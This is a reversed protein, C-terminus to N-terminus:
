KSKAVYVGDWEAGPPNAAYDAIREAYLDYLYSLESGGLRRCEELRETAEAWRQSRYTTLMTDHTAVLTQFEPLKARTADGLLGFIHVAEKKGKVAILDLEITALDRAQERTRPGLLTTVGYNKSQGELRSALNVDDGLVSYDFRQESGMNGVCCDGTNIGIGVNIPHFTRGEAEADRKLDDNLTRLSVSMALASMCANRVHDPDDLPANWFAMICDGMYKDITGRRELIINTMPTLFRNILRTLGRPDSKFQESISTFGRIDSFLISMNKMEGGLTLREPNAALQEVLSPSIYRGFAGRVQRREKEEQVYGLYTLLMYLALAVATPYVVDFLIQYEVFLHWSVAFVAAISGGAVILTWVAGVLPILVIMLLGIVWLAAWEGVVVDTPRSLHKGSLATELLQAHVEVGPMADDVPTAKIDLLGIASTGVLALHGALRNVPLAGSLVDRASVYRRRDHRAYNVWARAHADTPIAVTARGASGQIAVMQIGLPNAKILLNREGMAVRLMELSLSPYVRDGVRMAMPVRRVVGDIEPKLSFMGIGQAAEELQPLNRAIGPFNFLHPLPDGIKAFVERDQRSESQIGTERAVTAQGLVVRVGRESLTRAFVADSDPLAKLAERVAPDVNGISDVVRSPSARDPEPFIVDFGVVAVGSKALKSVLDAIVTRPWPWQGVTSLSEEDIDIIVVPLAEYPRPHIRQYIDFTKLRLMEIPTPNWHYLAAFGALVVLMVLHVARFRRRIRVLVRRLWEVSLETWAQREVSAVTTTM